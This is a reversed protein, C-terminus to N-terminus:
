KWKEVRPAKGIAPGGSAVRRAYEPDLHPPHLLDLMEGFDITGRLEGCSTCRYLTGGM